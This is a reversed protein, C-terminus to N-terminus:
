TNGRLCDLHARDRFDGIIRQQIQPTSYRPEDWAAIVLDRASPMNEAVIDLVTQLSVGGQRAKMMSEAMLAIQACWEEATPEDQAYAPTTMALAAILAITTKM